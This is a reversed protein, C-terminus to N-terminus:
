LVRDSRPGKSAVFMYVVGFTLPVARVTGFGADRLQQSFEEPSPFAEVSAPLYNYASPHKSILRGIRPLVNRFYWLYFNRLAPTRPLSFELIVLTGGARLVRAIERCAVQPREVNRIGFGITAADVSADRLPIRTADGRVLDITSAATKTKGIQLMAASFDVGVVRKARRDGTTAALALDATGTCLDLVTERGTLQLADVARKRWRKDLGASLLHNLFDYREAIADFMGSIRASEKAPPTLPKPNPIQSESPM